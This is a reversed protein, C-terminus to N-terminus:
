AATIHEYKAQPTLTLYAAVSEDKEYARLKLLFSVLLWGNLSM